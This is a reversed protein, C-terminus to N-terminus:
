NNCGKSHCYYCTATKATCAATSKTMKSETHQFAWATELAAGSHATATGSPISHCEYCDTPYFHNPTKETSGKAKVSTLTYPRTDGSGGDVTTVGNWTTGVLDSGSEHCAECVNAPPVGSSRGGAEPGM